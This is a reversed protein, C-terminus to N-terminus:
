RGPAQAAALRLASTAALDFLARRAGDATRWKRDDWATGSLDDAAYLLQGFTTGRFQAVALLASAEADVVICGEGRRKAVKGPTERFFGDTTWTKGVTLAVGAEEAVETMTRVVHADAHVERSAPLYHYSTGEDRVASDVVVVHGLPLDAVLAGAGGCAVVTRCGAATVRELTVAALSAGQGPYFVALPSGRYEIAIFASLSPLPMLTEGGICLEEILDPFYCAVGASPLGEIPPRAYPDIYAVRDGDFELIPPQEDSV